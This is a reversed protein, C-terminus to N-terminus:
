PRCSGTWARVGVFSPINRARTRNSFVSRDGVDSFTSGVTVLFRAAAAKLETWCSTHAIEVLLTLWSGLNVLVEVETHFTVLGCYVFSMLCANVITLCDTAMYRM